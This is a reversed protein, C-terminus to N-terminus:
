ESSGAIDVEFSVEIQVTIAWDALIRFIGHVDAASRAGPVAAAQSYLDDSSVAHITALSRRLAREVRGETISGTCSM